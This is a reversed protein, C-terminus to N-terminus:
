DPQIYGLAELQRRLDEQSARVSKPDDEPGRREPTYAPSAARWAELRGDLSADVAPSAGALNSTEDPDVGLDYRETAGSAWRIWKDSGHVLAHGSRMWQEIEVDPHVAQVSRIERELPLAMTAVVDSPKDFWSAREGPAAPVGTLAEVTGFLDITSVPPSVRGAPVTAPHRVVLPVHLLSDWLAFRHNFLHHDGLNEGHDATIVVITDDLVGREALGAMLRETAGDLDLLAADYVARMAELEAPSYEQKDFNYFHLSIHSADTALGLRFLDEDMLAKRSELSPIRPTHAEMMNIYAFWPQDPEARDDLWRLLGEGLLPGAEKYVARAWEANKAGHAPPVYLPALENSADRPLLKRRTLAAARERIPGHWTNVVTDFGQMLNTDNSLLTNAALAVTQYGHSSLHEALTVHWSDLWLWREDAGTAKPPLGTFLAAHAPLTWMGPSRAQEFVAAEEAFARLWPTTPRHHGYLSLRDARVTDWVVVLVNPRANPAPLAAAAPQPPPPPPPARLTVATAILGVAVVAVVAGGLAVGRNM